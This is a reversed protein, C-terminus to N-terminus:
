AKEQTTKRKDTTSDSSSIWSTNNWTKIIICFGAKPTKTTTTATTTTTQKNKTKGAQM